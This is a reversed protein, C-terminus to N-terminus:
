RKLLDGKGGKEFPSSIFAQLHILMGIAEVLSAQTYVKGEKKFPPGPPIKYQRM